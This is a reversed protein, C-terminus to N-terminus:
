TGAEQIGGYKLLVPQQFKAKVLKLRGLMLQPTLSDPNSDQSRWKSGKHGSALCGRQAKAEQDMFPGLEATNSGKSHDPV